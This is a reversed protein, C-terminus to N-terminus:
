SEPQIIWKLPNNKMYNYIKCYEEDNRIIHEYYNRQWISYGIKKSVGSKLLGIVNSIKINSPQDLGAGVNKEIIFHVHNPMIVYDCIKISNFHKSINILEKEIIEGM